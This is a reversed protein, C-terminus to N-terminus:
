KENTFFYSFVVLAWSQDNAYNNNNNKHKNYNEIAFDYKNDEVWEMRVAFCNEKEKKKCIKQKM